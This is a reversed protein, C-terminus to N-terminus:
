PVPEEMEWGDHYVAKRLEEVSTIGQEVLGAGCKRLTRMKQEQVAYTFIADKPARDAIMQRVRSDVTLIEHIAIRGRYGTGSCFPCGTPVCIQEMAKGLVRKDEATAKVRRACRPCLKRVLRQAVIGVLSASALYPEM